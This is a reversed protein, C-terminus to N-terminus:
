FEVRLYQRGTNGDDPHVASARVVKVGAQELALQVLSSVAEIDHSPARLRIEVEVPDVPARRVDPVSEPKGAQVFNQLSTSWILGDARLELYMNDADTENELVQKISQQYKKAILAAARLAKLTVKM